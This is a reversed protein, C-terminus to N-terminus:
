RNYIIMADNFAEKNNITVGEPKFYAKYNEVTSWFHLLVSAKQSEM